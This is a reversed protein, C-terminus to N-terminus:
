EVDVITAVPRNYQEILVQLLHIYGRYVRNRQYIQLAAAAIRELSSIERLLVLLEPDFSFRAAAHGRKKRHPPDEPAGSTTPSRPGM